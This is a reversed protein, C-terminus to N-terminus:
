NSLRTAVWDMVIQHTWSRCVDQEPGGVPGLPTRFLSGAGVRAPLTGDLGGAGATCLVLIRTVSGRRHKGVSENRGKGGLLCRQGSQDVGWGHDVTLVLWVGGLTSRGRSRASYSVGGWGTRVADPHTPPRRGGGLRACSRYVRSRGGVISASPSTGVRGEWYADSDLTTPGGGM